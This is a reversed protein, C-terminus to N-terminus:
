SIECNNYGRVTFLIGMGARFLVKSRGVWGYIKYIDLSDTHQVENVSCSIICRCTRYSM